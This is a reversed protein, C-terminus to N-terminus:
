DSLKSDIGVPKLSRERLAPELHHQGHADEYYVRITEFSRNWLIADSRHACDHGKRDVCVAELSRERPPREM